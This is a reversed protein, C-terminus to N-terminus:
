SLAVMSGPQGGLGGELERLLPTRELGLAGARGREDGRAFSAKLKDEAQRVQSGLRGAFGDVQNLARAFRWTLAAGIAVLLASYSLRAVFIRGDPAIQLVSLM